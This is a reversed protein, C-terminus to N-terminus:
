VIGIGRLGIHRGMQAGVADDGAVADDAAPTDTAGCGALGVTMATVLSAALIRKVIKSKM